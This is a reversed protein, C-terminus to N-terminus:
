ISISSFLIILGRCKWPKNSRTVKHQLITYQTKEMKQKWICMAKCLISHISKMTEYKPKFNKLLFRSYKYNKCKPTDTIESYTDTSCRAPWRKISKVEDSISFIFWKWFSQCTIAAGLVSINPRQDAQMQSVHHLWNNGNRETPQWCQYIMAASLWSQSM